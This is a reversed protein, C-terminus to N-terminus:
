FSDAIITMKILSRIYRVYKQFPTVWPSSLGCKAENCRATRTFVIKSSKWNEVLWLGQHDDQIDSMTGSVIKSSSCM